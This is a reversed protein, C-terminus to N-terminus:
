SLDHAHTKKPTLMLFLYCGLIYIRSAWRTLYLGARLHLSCRNWLEKEKAVRKPPLLLKLALKPNLRYHGFREPFAEALQLHGMVVRFLKKRQQTFSRPPHHIRMDDAYAMRFGAGHVRLGFETDEGSRFRADFGGAKELVERRVALNATVGHHRTMYERVNFATMEDYRHFFGRIMEPHIDIRGAAYDHHELAKRMAEAWGPRVEVDADLFAIIEGRAESLGLNRAAAPGQNPILAMERVFPYEACARAAEADGGDNVVIMEFGNNTMVKKLSDLTIRLGEADARVPTVISILGAQPAHSFAISHTM